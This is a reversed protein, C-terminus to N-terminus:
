LFSNKYALFLSTFRSLQLYISVKVFCSTLSLPHPQHGLLHLQPSCFTIEIGSDQHPKGLQNELNSIITSEKKKGGKM